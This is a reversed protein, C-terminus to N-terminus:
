GRAMGWPLSRRRNGLGLLPQVGRAQCAEEPVGIASPVVSYDPAAGACGGTQVKEPGCPPAVRRNRLAPKGRGSCSRGSPDRQSM